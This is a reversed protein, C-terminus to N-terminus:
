KGNRTAELQKAVKEAVEQPTLQNDLMAQLLPDTFQQGVGGPVGSTWGVLAGNETSDAIQEKVIPPTDEYKAEPITLIAPLQGTAIQTAQGEVSMVSELFKKALAQNKSQKPIGLTDGAYLSLKTKRAPDASPLLMWGMDFDLGQDEMIEVSYNGDLLMGAKEQIFLSEAQPVKQGLAGDQYVGAKGMKQLMTVADVFAPDTYQASVEVDPQWSSLYNAYQEETSTTQLFADIQWSAQYGDAPGYALGQKGGKQLAKAIKVFEDFSEVRHDKPEDIKLKKFIEKNYYVVNYFTRDYAVVYPTGDSKLAKAVDPGFGAELDGTKWVDDLPVLQKTSLMRSYVQTNTPIIGVDPGNASTLVTLNSGTKATVAVSTTKVEKGPNQEKFVKIFAEFQKESGSQVQVTITKGADEGEAADGGGGCAALSTTALMVGLGTALARFVRSTGIRVDTM